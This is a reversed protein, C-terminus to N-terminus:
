HMSLSARTGQSGRLLGPSFRQGKAPVHPPCVSPLNKIWVDRLKEADSIFCELADAKVSHRHLGTAECLHWPAPCGVDGCGRGKPERSPEWQAAEAESSMESTCSSPGWADGHLSKLDGLTWRKNRHTWVHTHLGSTSTDEKIM